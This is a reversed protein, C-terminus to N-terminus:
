QIPNAFQVNARLNRLYRRPLHGRMRAHPPSLDSIARHSTPWRATWCLCWWWYFDITFWANSRIPALDQSFDYFINSTSVVVVNFRGSVVKVCEDTDHGLNWQKLYMHWWSRLQHIERRKLIQFCANAAATSDAPATHVPSTVAWRPAPWHRWRGAPALTPWFPLLETPVGAFYRM